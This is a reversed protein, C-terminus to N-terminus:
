FTTYQPVKAIGLHKNGIGHFSQSSPIFTGNLVPGPRHDSKGWSKKGSFFLNNEIRDKQHFKIIHQNILTSITQHYTSKITQHNSKFKFISYKGIKKLFKHSNSM